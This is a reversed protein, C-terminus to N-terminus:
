CFRFLLDWKKKLLNSKKKRRLPNGMEKPLFISSLLDQTQLHLPIKESAMAILSCLHLSDVTNRFLQLYTQLRKLCCRASTMVPCGPTFLSLGLDGNM